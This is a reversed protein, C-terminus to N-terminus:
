TYMMTYFREIQKTFTTSKIYWSNFMTNKVNKKEHNM